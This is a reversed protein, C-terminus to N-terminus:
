KLLKTRILKAVAEAAGRYGPSWGPRKSLSEALTACETIANRRCARLAECESCGCGEKAGSKELKAVPISALRELADKLEDNM